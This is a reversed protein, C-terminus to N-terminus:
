MDQEVTVKKLTSRGKDDVVELSHTGNGPKWEAVAEPKSSGIYEGDVYWSLLAADSAASAKLPITPQGGGNVRMVYAVNSQPSYIEPAQGAAGGGRAEQRFPPPAPKHIGASRFLALLDSPWAEYSVKRSVDPDRDYTRLGTRRDIYAAQHISCAEIPSKGPIFLSKKLRPCDPGPMRGSLECVEVEAIGEPRADGGDELLWSFDPKMADFLAFMLPTAAERGLFAPNGSGDFNGVWVAVICNGCLGISWADKYGISTGTKYAVAAQGSSAPISPAGPRPNKRLMDRVIWASERSLIRVASPDEKGGKRLSVPKLLGGNGLASYLGALQFLSVEASGLALSLGYHGRERLGETGAKALLDYLDPKIGRALNIAPINRSNILADEASLPGLYNRGYNEPTYEGYVAPSDKVLTAPIVLGQEIALGYIFPKLASGPSRRAWVGDNQGEIGGDGFEASGAYALVEMGEADVVLASCNLIGEGGRKGVYLSVVDEVARQARLDLTGYLSIEGPYLAILRQTYHPASFPRHWGLHLPMSVDARRDSDEPHAKVWAEFLRKRAELLAAPAEPDEDARLPGRRGPSQPLVALLLSQPLSLSEPEADLYLRAAAPFGEVNNGCPVLNLYAELIERKSHYASIYFAAFMQAIKGVITGTDMRYRLRALQMPITSAGSKGNRFIYNQAVSRAVAVPNVGPHFYFWRDEKLLVAEKLEKSFRELPRYVRYRDDAALTLRLLRGDRAYVCRSFPQGALLRERPRCALYLALSAAAAALLCAAPGLSPRKRV